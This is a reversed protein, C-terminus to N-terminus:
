GRRGSMGTGAPGPVFCGLFSLAINSVVRVQGSAMALAQAVLTELCQCIAADGSYGSFGAVARAAGAWGAERLTHGLGALLMAHLEARGAEQALLRAALGGARGGALVQGAGDALAWRTASGGADLCLGAPTAIAHGNPHPHL